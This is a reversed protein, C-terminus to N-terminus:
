KNNNTELSARIKEGDEPDVLKVFSTSVFGIIVAVISTLIFILFITVIIKGLRKPSKMKAISTTITLFILPILM